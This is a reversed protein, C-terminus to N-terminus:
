WGEPQESAAGVEQLKTITYHQQSPPIVVCSKYTDTCMCADCTLATICLEM